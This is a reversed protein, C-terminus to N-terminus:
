IADTGFGKQGCLRNRAESVPELCHACYTMWHRESLDTIPAGCVPCVGQGDLRSEESSFSAITHCGAQLDSIGQEIYSSGSFHDRNLRRLSELPRAVRALLQQRQFTPLLTMLKAFDLVADMERSAAFIWKSQPNSLNLVRSKPRRVNFSLWAV